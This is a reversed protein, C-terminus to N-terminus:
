VFIECILDDLIGTIFVIDVYCLLNHPSLADCLVNYM